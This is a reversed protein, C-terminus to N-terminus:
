SDVRRGEATVQGERVKTWKAEEWGETKYIKRGEGLEKKLNNKLQQEATGENRLREICNPGGRREM